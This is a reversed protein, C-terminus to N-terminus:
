PQLCITNELHPMIRQQLFDKHGLITIIEPCGRDAPFYRLAAVSHLYILDKALAPYYIPHKADEQKLVWNPLFRSISEPSLKTLLLTSTPDYLIQNATREDLNIIDQRLDALAILRTYGNETSIEYEATKLPRIKPAYWFLGKWTRTRTPLASFPEATVLYVSLDLAKAFKKIAIFANKEPTPDKNFLIETRLYQRLIILPDYIKIPFLVAYDNQDHHQLFIKTM